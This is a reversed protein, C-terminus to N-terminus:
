EICIVKYYFQNVLGQIHRNEVNCLVFEHVYVCGAPTDAMPLFDRLHKFALTTYSVSGSYVM